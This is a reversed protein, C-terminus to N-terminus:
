PILCEKLVEAVSRWGMPNQVWALKGDGRVISFREGSGLVKRADAELVAILSDQDGKLPLSIGKELLNDKRFSKGTWPM